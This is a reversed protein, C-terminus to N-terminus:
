RTVCSEGLTRGSNGQKVKSYMRIRLQLHKAAAKAETPPTKEPGVLIFRYGLIYSRTAIYNCIDM